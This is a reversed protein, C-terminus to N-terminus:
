PSEAPLDKREKKRKREREKRKEKKREEEERRKKMGGALRGKLDWQLPHFSWLKLLLRVSLDQAKRSLFFDIRWPSKKKKKRETFSQSFSLIQCIYRSSPYPKFTTFCFPSSIETKKLLIKASLPKRKKRRGEKRREKKKKREREEKKKKLIKLHGELLCYLLQLCGFM